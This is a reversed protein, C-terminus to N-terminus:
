VTGGKNQSRSRVPIKPKGPAKLPYQRSVLVTSFTCEKKEREEQQKRLACMELEHLSGHAIELELRRKALVSSARRKPLRTEVKEVVARPENTVVAKQAVIRASRDNM